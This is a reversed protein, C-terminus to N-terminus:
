GFYGMCMLYDSSSFPPEESYYVPLSDSYIPDEKLDAKNTSSFFGAGKMAKTIGRLEGSIERGLRHADNGKKFFDISFLVPAVMACASVVVFLSIATWLAPAVGLLILPCSIAAVFLLPLGIAIGIMSGVTKLYPSYSACNAEEYFKEINLTLSDLDNLNTACNLAKLARATRLVQELAFLGDCWASFGAQKILAEKYHILKQKLEEKPLGFNQMIFSNEDVISAFIVELENCCAKYKSINKECFTKDIM